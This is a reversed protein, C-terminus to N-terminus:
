GGSEGTVAKRDHTQAQRAGMLGMLYCVEHHPSGTIMLGTYSNMVFFRKRPTPPTSECAECTDDPATRAGRGRPTRTEM